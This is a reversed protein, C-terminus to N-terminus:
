QNYVLIQISSGDAALTAVAGVGNDTAAAIGGTVPVIDDTMM